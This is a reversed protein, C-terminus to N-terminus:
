FEDNAWAILQKKMTKSIQGSDYLANITTQAGSLTSANARIDKQASTLSNYVPYIEDVYSLAINRDAGTLTNAYKIADGRTMIGKRNLERTFDVKSITEVEEESYLNYFSSVTDLYAKYFNNGFQSAIGPEISEAYELIEGWTRGQNLYNAVLSEGLSRAKAYESETLGYDSATATRGSDKSSTGSSGSGGSGGSSGYGYASSLASYVKAEWLKKASTTDIGLAELKSFDGIDAAAYAEDLQQATLQAQYATKAATTDIGLAELKSFDGIEAASYANQLATHEAATKAEALYREYERDVNAQDAYLQGYQANINAKDSEAQLKLQEQESALNRLTQTRALENANRNASYQNAQEVKYTDAYGSNYLGSSALQNAAARQQKIYDTYAEQAINDYQANTDAVANKYNAQGAALTADVGALASNQSQKLYDQATYIEDEVPTITTKVASAM